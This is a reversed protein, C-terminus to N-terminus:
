KRLFFFFFVHSPGSIKNKSWSIAIYITDQFTIVSRNFSVTGKLSDHLQFSKLFYVNISKSFWKFPILQFQFTYVFIYM